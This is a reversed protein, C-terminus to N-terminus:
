AVTSDTCRIFIPVPTTIGSAYIKMGPKFSINTWTYQSVALTGMDELTLTLGGSNATWLLIHYRDRYNIVYPATSSINHVD